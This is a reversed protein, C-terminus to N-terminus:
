TLRRSLIPIASALTVPLQSRPARLLARLIGAPAPAARTLSLHPPERQPQRAGSSARPDQGRRHHRALAHGPPSRHPAGRATELDRLLALLQDRDAGTRQALAATTLGDGLALLQEAAEATLPKRTNRRRRRATPTAKATSPSPTGRRKLRARVKRGPTVGHRVESAPHPRRHIPDAPRNPAHRSISRGKTAPRSIPIPRAPDRVLSPELSSAVLDSWPPRPTKASRRHTHLWDTEPRHHRPDPLDVEILERTRSTLVRYATGNTMETSIEVAADALVAANAKEKSESDIWCTRYPRHASESNAVREAVRAGGRKRTAVPM